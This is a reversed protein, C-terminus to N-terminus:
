PRLSISSVWVSLIHKISEDRLQCLAEAGEGARNRIALHAHLAVLQKAMAEIPANPSLEGKLQAKKLRRRFGRELDNLADIIIQGVGMDGSRDSLAVSMLLCGLPKNISDYYHKYSITYVHSLADAIPLDERFASRFRERTQEWYDTLVTKFIDSKDGFGNYLSPRKLGTAECLDDVTTAAFGKVWFLDRMTRLTQAQDYHRPRGRHRVTKRASQAALNLKSLSSTLSM